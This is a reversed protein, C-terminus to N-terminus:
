IPDSRIPYAAAWIQAAVPQTRLRSLAGTTADSGPVSVRVLPSVPPREAALYGRIRWLVAGLRPALNSDRARAYDDAAAAACQLSSNM